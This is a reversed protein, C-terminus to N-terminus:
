TRPSYPASYTGAAGRLNVVFAGRAFDCSAWSAMRGVSRRRSGASSGAATPASARFSYASTQSRVRALWIDLATYSCTLASTASASPPTRRRPESVRRRKGPNKRSRSLWAM